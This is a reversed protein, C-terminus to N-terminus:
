HLYLLVIWKYIHGNVTKYILFLRVSEATSLISLEQVSVCVHVDKNYM